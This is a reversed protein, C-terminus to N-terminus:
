GKPYPPRIWGAVLSRPRTRIFVGGGNNQSGGTGSSTNGECCRVWGPGVELVVGIHDATAGSVGPFKFLAFDGPRPSSVRRYGGLSGTLIAPCFGNRLRPAGGRGAAETAFCACWPVPGAYGTARTWDSIKPGWNSGAPHEVTGVQALAWKVAKMAPSQEQEYRRIVRKAYAVQARRKGLLKTAADRAAVLPGRPHVGRQRASDLDHQARTHRSKASRELRERTRLRSRWRTLISM